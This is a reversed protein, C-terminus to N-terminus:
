RVEEIHVQLTLRGRFRANEELGPASVLWSTERTASRTAAMVRADALSLTALSEAHFRAEALEAARAPAKGPANPTAEPLVNGTLQQTIHLRVSPEATRPGDLWEGTELAAENTWNSFDIRRPEQWRDGTRLARPPITAAPRLARLLWLAALPPATEDFSLGAAPALGIIGGRADEQYTLTRPAADLWARLSSELAERLKRSDDDRAESAAEPATKPLATMQIGSFGSLTEEIAAAGGNVSVVTRVATWELQAEASRAFPEVYTRAGIKVPRQGEVESRVTLRVRYAHRAGATFTRQLGTAANEQPSVVHVPLDVNSTRSEFRASGAPVPSLVM